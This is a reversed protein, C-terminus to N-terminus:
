FDRWLELARWWPHRAGRRSPSGSAGVRAPPSASSTGLGTQSLSGEGTQAVAGSASPAVAYAKQGPMVLGLERHAIREIGAPQQLATARARLAANEADLAAIQRHITAIEHRQDVLTRTPLVFLLLAGVTVVSVALLWVARRM